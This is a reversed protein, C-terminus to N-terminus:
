YYIRLFRQRMFDMWWTPSLVGSAYPFYAIFFMLCVILYAILVIRGARPFRLQIWHLLLCTGLILFPISAFYHYMYTGRPVLVWPLYQALFGVLVVAPAISWSSSYLHVASQHPKLVYFHRKGWVYAAVALAILGTILVAPNGFCFIAYSWGEPVFSPSAYYMPRKILPWEYWPSYFPHDMGRGPEGHYILMRKQRDIVLNLYDMFTEKYAYAFHPIYSLLYIAGPIAVFFLLCWLCIHLTRQFAKDGRFMEVNKYLLFYAVVLVTLLCACVLKSIDGRVTLYGLLAILVCLAGLSFLASRAKQDKLSQHRMCKWFFMLALGAGSYIGIWKSAIGCGMFLGSLGLDILVNKMPERIIDRQMFRIMFLWSLIIFLVPFSDITAIRTQTFHMCDLAMMTMAAFGISTRKTLQKGLAYMVPLMLIGMLAGAFRWGFPTMGFIAVGWSMIVKGLPPHTTEYPVTGNLHEFATRAHYIEDFYTSNWWGPEGEITDQEDLVAAPDSYNPSAPNAHEARLVTAPIANWSADRFIVENLVLGIQQATIRVYRGSFKRTDERTKVGLYTRGSETETYSGLYKWRFCQGETMEAWYEDSWNEGDESVAISFENYSVQCFYLMSVDDYHQGLDIIVAEDYSTSKWPNQPAKTSGLTTLTVVSYVLTVSLMLIWDLRKLGLKPDGKWEKPDHPSKEFRPLKLSCEGGCVCVDHCVYAAALAALVNVLSVLDNLWLTDSNLHGGSSGLRLSNDLVIGENILLTCSMVVLLWFVRIDRRVAFAMGLLILAPFLYREHMKIGLVYLLIFLAAGCLPLNELKGARIYCSLVVVFAMVMATTGLVTWSVQLPIMILYAAAFVVMAAPELWGLRMRRQRFYLWCAWCASMVAFIVPANWGCSRAIDVWNGDLLYYLNAANVTAHAYSSLTKGYLEFLWLANKQNLCFPIIIVAAVAASIGLGALMDRLTEQFYKKNERYEQVLHLVIALLGLPGLMLAQPKMLASLVYVPLVAKWKRDIALWAVLMLCLCLVSDVQAWAASNVAMAPNMAFLLGLMGAQERDMKRRALRYLMYAMVMDCAIPIIKHPFIGSLTLNFLGAIAQAVPRLIMQNIGLVYIYGPTYDCFSTSQYFNIPGVKAMTNGWSVFCGVDVQYGDVFMATVIRAVTAIILGLVLFAPARNKPKHLGRPDRHFCYAMMWLGLLVYFASIVLLWPWFPTPEKEEAASSSAAQTQAATYWNDAKANGPVVDVKRLTLDDFLAHGISLGSYGGVRVFLTVTRQEPGTRGYLEVYRWDDSADFIGKSFIYLGGISLNAGRGQDNMELVKIYGSFCYYSNPEVAVEQLFRADNEGFNQISASHGGSRADDSVSWLTYGEQHYWADTQWGTPLGQGNLNEFGANVLLNGSEEALAPLCVLLLLLLWLLIRKWSQM